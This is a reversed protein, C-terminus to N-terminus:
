VQHDLSDPGGLGPTNSFDFEGGEIGSLETLQEGLADLRVVSARMQALKATMLSLTQSVRQRDEFLEQRSVTLENQMEAIHDEFLLQWRGDALNLGLLMGVAVPIGIVAATLLVKIWSNLSFTRIKDSGKSILILKM